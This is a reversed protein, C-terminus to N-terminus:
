KGGEVALPALGKRERMIAVVRMGLDDGSQDAAQSAAGRRQDRQADMRKLADLAIATQSENGSSASTASSARTRRLAILELALALQVDTEEFKLGVIAALSQMQALWAQHDAIDQATIAPRGM